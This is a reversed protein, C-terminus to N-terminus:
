KRKTRQRGIQKRRGPRSKGTGVKGPVSKVSPTKGATSKSEALMAELVTLDRELNRRRIWFSVLYIASIVLFVAYGAIMYASTNPPADQLLM